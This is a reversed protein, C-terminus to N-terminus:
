ASEVFGVLLLVRSSGSFYSASDFLGGFGARMHKSQACGKAYTNQEPRMSVAQLDMM